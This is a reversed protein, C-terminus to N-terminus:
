DPLPVALVWGRAAAALEITQEYKHLVPATPADDMASFRQEALQLAAAKTHMPVLSWDRLRTLVTAVAVKVTRWALLPKFKGSRRDIRQGLVVRVRHRELLAVGKTREIDEGYGNLGSVTLRGLEHMPAAKNTRCAALGGLAEIFGKANGRQGSGAEIRGEADTGRALAWLKALEPAEPATQLRRFEDWATLCKAVGFLQAANIGWLSRYADVREATALHEAQKRQDAATTADGFLGVQQNLEAGGDVTKLLYKMAYSAGSSISRDIRALEVQAGEKAHTPTRFANARLADLTDFMISGAHETTTRPTRVKLKNPFYDMVTALIRRETEPRYLLWVHWHPCGDGHPEVVRM